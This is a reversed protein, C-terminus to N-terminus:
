VRSRAAAIAAESDAFARDYIPAWAYSQALNAANARARSWLADDSLLRDVADVLADEDYPIAIGAERDEIDRAIPPVRTIVVPLGCAMYMRPKTPDTYKKLNVKSEARDEYPAIGIACEVMTLEVDRDSLVGHFHVRDAFGRQEVHREFHEKLPGTGIVELTADPFREFIRPLASFLLPTGTNESIMGLYVLRRRAVKDDALRPIDQFDTGIPVTLAPASRALDLGLRGRTEQMAPHLNWIVDARRCAAHDMKHFLWNLLKNQFRVEGYDMIYYVVRDVKRLRRLVVGVLANHSEVGVYVDAKGKRRIGLWFTALVDRLKLLLYSFMNEKANGLRRPWRPFRRRSRQSGRAEEVQIAWDDSIPLPQFFCSLRSARSAVYNRLDLAPGGLKTFEGDRVHTYSAIVVDAGEVGPM